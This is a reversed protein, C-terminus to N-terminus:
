VGKLKAVEQKLEEIMKQQEQIAATLTAVLFSTDVGQYKPKGDKDVADKEGTVADPIVAQLEHAIFGQGASGDIKWNYTVPKLQAVVGLANQMPQVNEKLRHDSSTNYATNSGTNTIGGTFTGNRGFFVCNSSGTGSQLNNIGFPNAVSSDAAIVVRHNSSAFNNSTTGVLVSGGGDIRMREAGATNFGIPFGGGVENSITLVASNFPVGISGLNGDLNNGFRAFGGGAGTNNFRGNGNVDLTYIPGTTGIGVNGASTIRMAEARTASNSPTTAFTLYSGQASGLTWAQSTFGQMGASNYTGGVGGRSGFLYFGLRQDAATPTGDTYGVIGAGASTSPTATNIAQFVSTTAASVTLAATTSSTGIGVEGAPTIRMRETNTTGFVIPTGGNTYILANSGNQFRLAGLNANSLGVTTGTAASDYQTIATGTFTLGTWYNNVQAEVTAQGSTDQTRMAIRQDANSAVVDLKNPNSISSSGIGVNGSTDIRMREVGSTSMTLPLSTGTGSAGTAIRFESGGVLVVQGFSDDVASSSSRLLLQSNVGTGNPLAMITTSGNTTSTQFAMRNAITANSMDGTIRQGTASFTLNGTAISVNGASTIRMRETDSTTNTFVFDGSDLNKIFLSGQYQSIFANQSASGGRNLQLLAGDATGGILMANSSGSGFSRIDGIVDLKVGPSSTGIGVNGASTVRMREAIITSGIPTTSFVMDSGRNTPSFNEAALGTVWVSRVYGSGDYGGLQYFGLADGSQTATPSSVTGRASLLTVVPTGGGAGFSRIQMRETNSEGQLVISPQGAALITSSAVTLPFGPSSTGIGVNGDGRILFLLNNSSAGTQKRFAFGGQTSSAALWSNWFDVEANGASFNYSISGGFIDSPYVANANGAFAIISAQSTAAEVTFKAPESATGISVNGTTTIRMREISNTQFQLPIADFVALYANSGDIALGVDNTGSTVRTEVYGSNGSVQLKVAPSSTGVGVNGSTDIRLRESGGTFITLPLYTGTGSINSRITADTSGLVGIALLSANAVDSSNYLGFTATIATGNPIVSLSTNGNTTSSQFAVRNAVTSNSFDGTIRRTTGIFTLNGNLNVNPSGGADIYGNEDLDVSKEAPYTLFVDKTGAPFNVKSGSNSSELITTRALTPGTTSYTGIGVEWNGVNDAITYYCTNTNGVVAFSQFGTVAGLLIADNTGTVTTTERVRDRLVLAM